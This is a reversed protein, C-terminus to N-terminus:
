PLARRPLRNQIPGPLGRPLRRGRRAVCPQRFASLRIMKGKTDRGAATGRNSPGPSRDQARLPPVQDPPAWPRAPRTGNSRHPLSLGVVPRRVTAVPRSTEHEPTRPRCGTSPATWRDALNAAALSRRRGGTGRPRPPAGRSGVLLPKRRHAVQSAGALYRASDAPDPLRSAGPASIGCPTHSTGARRPFVVV